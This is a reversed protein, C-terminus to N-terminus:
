ADVDGLEKRDLVVGTGFVISDCESNRSSIAWISTKIFIYYLWEFIHFCCSEFSIDVHERASAFICGGLGMFEDIADGWIEIITDPKIDFGVGAWAAWPTVMVACAVAIKCHFQDFSDFAFSFCHSDVCRLVHPCGYEGTLCSARLCWNVDGKPVSVVIVIRTETIECGECSPFLGIDFLVVTGLGEASGTDISTPFWSRDREFM